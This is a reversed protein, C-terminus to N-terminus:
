NTSYNDPVKTKSFILIVSSLVGAIVLGFDEKVSLNVAASFGVVSWLLPILIVYWPVRHTSYLLLGFTFITTPCPVGFSPSRPYVHGMTHGIFPYLVLSYIFLALAVIGPFDRTFKLQITEKIVGYYLFILGQILFTTGFLYAAKNISSFFIIHYVFGMWVWFFTLISMVFRGSNHSGKVVLAVATLALIYLFIQGPWLSRNYDEFVNFFEEITFPIKMVSLLRFKLSSM